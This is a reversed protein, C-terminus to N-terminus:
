AQGCTPQESAGQGVMGHRGWMAPLVSSAMKTPMTSTTTICGPRPAGNSWMALPPPSQRCVCALSTCCAPSCNQPAHMLCPASNFQCAIAHCPMAHCSAVNVHCPMAHCPMAHCSAVNVHCPMAHCPMAHCIKCQCWNAHCPVRPASMHARANTNSMAHEVTLRRAMCQPVSDHLAATGEWAAACRLLWDASSAVMRMGAPVCEPGRAPVVSASRLTARWTPLQPPHEMITCHRRQLSSMHLGTPPGGHCMISHGQVACTGMHASRCASQAPLLTCPLPHVASLVGGVELRGGWAMQRWTTGSLMTTAATLVFTSPSM